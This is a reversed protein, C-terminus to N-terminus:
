RGDGDFMKWRGLGMFAEAFVDVSRAFGSQPYRMRRAIAAITAPQNNSIGMQGGTMREM